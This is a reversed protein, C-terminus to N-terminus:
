HQLTRVGRQTLAAATALVIATGCSILATPTGLAAALPGILAEGIPIAAFSGLADYSYVRALRDTPVHTQLSQDWAITFQEVALGGFFFAAVLLPVSPAVALAYIPLATAATLAVGVALARRPHWRLAVAGGALFGVTESALVLGWSARGFTADAIVPGLIAIAGTFAANVIGFQAVVVWVWRRSTFENWGVRLDHLVSGVEVDNDNDNDATSRTHGRITSFLLGGIFFTLADVAIGAAPGLVAVLLSGGAAGLITGSNVSLRLMANAQRLLYRPVTTPVLASSAPLAIGAALGNLAALVALLGTSAQGFVLVAVVAAQTLAAALSAGLLVLHRPFRDAIIGGILLVAVNAVARSAVVLGLAVASGTLDLVAFALAVPAIANGVM